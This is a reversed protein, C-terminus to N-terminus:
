YGTGLTQKLKAAFAAIAATAAAPDFGAKAFSETFPGHGKVTFTYVLVAQAHGNAAPETSQTVKQVTVDPDM